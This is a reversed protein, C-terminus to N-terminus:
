DVMLFVIQLLPQVFVIRGGTIDAGGANLVQNQAGSSSLILAGGQVYVIWHMHGTALVTENPQLVKDVYSSM